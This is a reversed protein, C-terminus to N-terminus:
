NIGFIDDKLALYNLVKLHQWKISIIFRKLDPKRPNNYVKSVSAERSFKAVELHLYKGRFVFALCHKHIKQVRM